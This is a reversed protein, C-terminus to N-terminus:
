HLVAGCRPEDRSKCWSAAVPLNKNPIFVLVRINLEGAFYSLGLLPERASGPKAPSFQLAHLVSLPRVLLDGIPRREAHLHSSPFSELQRYGAIKQLV